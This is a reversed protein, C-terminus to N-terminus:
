KLKQGSGDFVSVTVPIGQRVSEGVTCFQEFQLLVRDLRAMGEATAGMRIDVAISLVRLRGAENRGIEGTATTTLGKPDLKFKRLAFYLSSSMCNGVAALLLHSPSPGAGQGLPPPEDSAIAPRDPAYHIDFRYDEIQKLTVSPPQKDDM